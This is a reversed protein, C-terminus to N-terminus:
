VGLHVGAMKKNTRLGFGTATYIYIYIYIYPTGLKSGIFVQVPTPSRDPSSVTSASKINRNEGYGGFFLCCFLIYAHHVYILLVHVKHDPEPGRFGIKRARTREFWTPICRPHKRAISKCTSIPSVMTCDGLDLSERIKGISSLDEALGEPLVCKRAFFFAGLM